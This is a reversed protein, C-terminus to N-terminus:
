QSIIIAQKHYFWVMNRGMEKAKYLMDDAVSIFYDLSSGQEPIQTNVGISITVTTSEEINLRISEAIELAGESNTDPLLVVFEEGGWRAAFDGPRKVTREISKAVTKLVADGEQHGYTDNYMKFKDVDIILLSIPLKDRIARRWELYLRNDFNRRNPIETLQDTLSIHELKKYQKSLEATRKQVLNELRKEENLTKHYLIFLLVIVFLLLVSVSIFWPQRSQVVKIRYDYTKYKWKESIKKVDIQALAKDIISRLIYENKNFGLFSEFPHDFFVNIKYGPKEMYNTLTLLLNQSAMMMDIEGLELASFADDVGEYEVTNPHNPFWTKFLETHATNKFLGIKLHLIENISADLSNEKSILVYRDQLLSNKPWLFRNQRDKSPILESIISARGDELMKLLEPWKVLQSNAQKFSIGTFIEVEELADFFIGQWENEYTNYFSTPYNDHEAAFYVIPHTKIYKREEEDLSYKFFKYRKYERQGKNYMDTLHRISKSQLMKQVVSIVPALESKRTSMSVPNYVLPQFDKASVDDYIDFFAESVSEEFFADIQGSKLMDHVSNHDPIFIIETKEDIFPSIINATVTGELFAYRLPRSKAVEELLMSNKIRFYKISREAITNTMYYKKRREETVTLEGTFDISGSELGAILNNWEYIMPKFRIGFLHSLYECFLTAYGKIEGNEEHFAETTINMGYIFHTRKKQLEEIAHIEEQTVGPIDRFSSYKLPENIQIEASKECSVILLFIAAFFIHM